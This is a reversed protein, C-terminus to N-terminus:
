EWLGEAATQHIFHIRVWGCHRCLLVRLSKDPDLNAPQLGLTAITLANLRGMRGIGCVQCVPESVGVAGIRRRMLQADREVTTLLQEASVRRNADAVVTSQLWRQVFPREVDRPEPILAIAEPTIAERHLHRGGSLTWYVLKGFSYIDASLGASSGAGLECEPAAFARNGM